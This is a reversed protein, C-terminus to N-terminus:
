FSKSASIGAYGESYDDRQYYTLGTSFNLGDGMVLDLKLKIDLIDGGVSDGYIVFRNTSTDMMLSASQKILKDDLDLYGMVSLSPTLKGLNTNYTNSLNFGAGLQKTEYAMRDYKLSAPSGTENYDDTRIWQYNYAIRPEFKINYLDFKVGAIFQYGLQLASYDSEAKTNGDYGTSKGIYRTSHINNKGVNANADVFYRDNFWGMYITALYTNIDKSDNSNKYNAQTGTYSSSFGIIKGDDFANDIGVNIGYSGLNYGGSNGSSQSGYGGILSSWANWSNGKGGLRINNRLIDTRDDIQSRVRDVTVLAARIDSGDADPTLEDALEASSKADSGSSVLLALLEGSEDSSTKNHENLAYNVMYDSVVIEDSNAGSSAVLAVFDDGGSYNIGYKAILQDGTVGGNVQPAGEVLWSDDVQLLPSSRFNDTAVNFGTGGNVTINDGGTIGGESDILIVDKGIIDNVNSGTYSMEITTDASFTTTGTVVLLPEDYNTNDGVQFNTTSGSKTSYSSDWVITQDNEVITLNGYNNIVNIGTITDGDFVADKGDSGNYGFNIKSGKADNGIINGDITGEVDIRISSSSDSFDIANEKGSVVAGNKVYIGFNPNSPNAQVFDGDIKIATGNDSIINVNDINLNGNFQSDSDIYISNADQGTTTINNTIYLSSFATGSAGQFELGNGNDVYIDGGSYSTDGDTKIVTTCVTYAPCPDDAFSLPPFIFFASISIVINKKKFFHNSIM